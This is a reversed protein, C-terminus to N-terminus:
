GVREYLATGADGGAARAFGSTRQMLTQTATGTTVLVVRVDPGLARRGGPSGAVWDLYAAQV